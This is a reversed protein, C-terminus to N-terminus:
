IAESIGILAGRVSCVHASKSPRPSVPTRKRAAAAAAVMLVVVLNGDCVLGTTERLWERLTTPSICRFRARRYVLTFAVTSSFGLRRSSICRRDDLFIVLYLGAEEKRLPRRLDAHNPLRRNIPFSGSKSMALSASVNRTYM